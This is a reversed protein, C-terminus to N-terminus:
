AVEEGPEAENLSLVGAAQWYERPAHRQIWSIAETFEAEAHDRIRSMADDLSVGYEARFQTEFQNSSKRLSGLAQEAQEDQRHNKFARYTGGIMVLGFLVGTLETIMALVQAFTGMPTFGPAFSFHLTSFASFVYTFLTPSATVAFQTPDLNYVAFELLAFGWVLKAGLWFLALMDGAIPFVSKRYSDVKYVWLLIGRHWMAGRMVHM